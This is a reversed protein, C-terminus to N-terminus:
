DQAKPPPPGMTTHGARPAPYPLTDPVIRVATTFKFPYKGAGPYTLEVFFATWGKPPKPVRAIYVGHQSPPLKSSQYIPGVSELRFDRHQPNTAQWLTVDLPATESEVRISGDHEFKWTFKPRASGAVISQYFAALSEFADTGKLSHDSNPIYRLYKEGPLDDFYFRSSDPLFFQDGASNILFKPMTYRDRYSYPDEIKMLEGYRPSSMADMLGMYFYDKVAPAWFGYVRYHHQFSKVVNPVDIVIPAIAIVRPDVAATAWTTWGRKSAGSVVFQTIRPGGGGQRRSVVHHRGNRSGRSQDHALAAAM